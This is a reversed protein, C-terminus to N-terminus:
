AADVKNSFLRQWFGPKSNAKKYDDEWQAKMKNIVEGMRNIKDTEEQTRIDKAVKLLYQDLDDTTEIPGGKWHEGSPPQDGSLYVKESGTDWKCPICGRDLDFYVKTMAIEIQDERFGHKKLWLTQGEPLHDPQSTFKRHIAKIDM